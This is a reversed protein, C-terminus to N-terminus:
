QELADLIRACGDTVSDFEISEAGTGDGIWGSGDENLCLFATQKDLEPHIRVFAQFLAFLREM